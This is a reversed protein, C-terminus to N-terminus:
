RARRCEIPCPAFAGTPAVDLANEGLVLDDYTPQGAVLGNQMGHAGVLGVRISCILARNRGVPQRGPGALHQLAPEFVLPPMGTSKPYASSM